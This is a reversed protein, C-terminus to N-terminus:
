DLDLNFSEKAYNRYAVLSNREGLLVSTYYSVILYPLSKEKEGLDHLASARNSQFGPMSRLSRHKICLMEGTIATDLEQQHRGLHGLRNSYNLLLVIYMSIRASEDVYFEMMSAMLSKYLNVGGEIEGNHCMNNAIMSAIILEYKTLRTKALTYEDYTDFNDKTIAWAEKLKELHEKDYGVLSDHMSAEEVMIFQRNIPNQFSKRTKLEDLIAKAEDYQGRLELTSAKNRLQKDAFVDIDLFTPFYRNIDRGLRQMFAELFYVNGHKIGGKEIKNLVSPTCIGQSLQRQTLKAQKRLKAILEGISKAQVAEGYEFKVPPIDMPLNEVDYTELEAGIRKAFELVQMAKKRKRLAVFGCLVPMLLKAVEENKGQEALIEAKIYVFDPVHRARTHRLSLERGTECVELAQTYDGTQQLLQALNLLMPVTQWEGVNHDSYQEARVAIVEQLLKIGSAPNIKAMAKALSHILPVEQFLLIKTNWGNTDFEKYTLHIGETALAIIQAPAANEFEMIRVQLSILLQRNIDTTFDATTQMEDLVKKARALAPPDDEVWDLHYLIEDRMAYTVTTANTLYPAFFTDVSMEMAKMYQEFTDFTPSQRANEVRSVTLLADGDGEILQIQPMGMRERVNRIVRAKEYSSM